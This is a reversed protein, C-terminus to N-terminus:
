MPRRTPASAGTHRDKIGNALGERYADRIVEVPHSLYVAHGSYYRHLGNTYGTEYAGTLAKVLERTTM